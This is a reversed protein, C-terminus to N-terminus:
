RTEQDRKGCVELTELGGSRGPQGGRWFWWRGPKATLVDLRYRACTVTGQMDCYEHELLFDSRPGKQSSPKSPLFRHSGMAARVSPSGALTAVGM